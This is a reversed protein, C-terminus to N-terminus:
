SYVGHELHHNDSTIVEKIDYNLVSSMYSPMYTLLTYLGWGNGLQAILIAWVAKSRFVERWPTAIHKKM